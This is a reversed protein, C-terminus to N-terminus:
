AGNVAKRNTWQMYPERMLEAGAHKRASRRAEPLKANAAQDQMNCDAELECLLCERRAGSVAARRRMGPGIHPWWKALTNKLALERM